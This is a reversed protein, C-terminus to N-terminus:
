YATPCNSNGPKSTVKINNNILEITIECSSIDKNNRPDEVTYQDNSDTKNGTLYGYSVLDGLTATLTNNNYNCTISDTKAYKCEQYYLESADKIDKILKNYIEDKLMYIDGIEELPFVCNNIYQYQYTDSEYYFQHEDNNQFLENTAFHESKKDFVEVCDILYFNGQKNYAKLCGIIERKEKTIFKFVKNLFLNDKNNNETDNITNQNNDEEKM